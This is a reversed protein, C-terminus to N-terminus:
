SLYEINNIHLLHKNENFVKLNEIALKIVTFEKKGRNPKNLLNM